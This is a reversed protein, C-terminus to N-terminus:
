RLTDVFRWWRRETTKVLEAGCRWPGVTTPDDTWVRNVTVTVDASPLTIEFTEPIERASDFALRMGGYSVDLIQARDNGANVEVVGSVARRNWHRSKRQTAHRAVILGQATFLFAPNHEPDAIFTAGYRVADAEVIKDPTANTVIVPLDPHDQRSFIALQLGNYEGLRVDAILLDPTSSALLAKADVFSRVAAVSYGRDTLAAGLERLVLANDHVLIILPAM